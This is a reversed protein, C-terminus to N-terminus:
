EVRITIRLDIQQGYPDKVNASMVCTGADMTYIKCTTDEATIWKNIGGAEIPGGQAAVYNNNYKDESAFQEDEMTGYRVLYRAPSPSTQVQVMYHNPMKRGSSWVGEELTIEENNRVIEGNVIFWVDEIGGEKTETVVFDYTDDRCLGSTSSVTVTAKGPGVAKANGNPDVSVVKPNNSKWVVGKTKTNAPTYAVKMQVSEGVVLNERLGISNKHDIGINQLETLDGRPLTEQVVETINDKSFDYGTSWHDTINARAKGKFPYYYYERCTNTGDLSVNGCGICVWYDRELVKDTGSSYVPATWGWIHRHQKKGCVTCEDVSPYNWWQHTHWGGCCAYMDDWDTVDNGCGNCAYGDKAKTHTYKWKHVHSGSANAAGAAKVKIKVWTTKKKGNKGKVTITIRATGKKKARIKGKKSVAVIKKNSSKYKVSKKAKAPSAKVKLVATKGKQLSYTRKTVKKKGIKVSVSKVKKAGAAQVTEPCAATMALVFVALVLAHRLIEWYTRKGRM